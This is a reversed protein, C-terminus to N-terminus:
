TIDLHCRLEERTINDPDKKEPLRVRRVEAHRELADQIQVAVLDGAIDPDTLITVLKFRALKLLHLPHLSKTGGIAAVAVDPCAREVALANLAGEVVVVHSPAARGRTWNMEGFLASPDPGEDKRANKYRPDQDTFTRATYNM